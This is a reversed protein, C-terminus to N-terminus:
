SENYVAKLIECVRPATTGGGSEGNEVVMAIAVEADRAGPRSMGNGKAYAIFWTNKRRSAGQGVEATGTKGIVDAAVGEAGRKGTGGDVVRRMGERVVDFEAKTYPLMRAQVAEGAKCRPTVLRGTGIAGAVRAMQLPTVMLMGQGISMQALDGPYWPEGYHLKKWAGDPVVGAFDSPYDIGTKEGLGFAHAAAFLANTGATMGLNCFFPNCSDRLGNRIDTPGHGWTRSCRIRFKEGIRFSGTCVYEAHSGIGAEMGAIATVPKFTSGPAYGGAVARNLLPKGPDSSLSDYLSKRMIPVCENPDFKPSSAMAMIGGNRADMVVCAGKVGELQAEAVAQIRVDLELVLDLGKEPEALVVGGRAFGRADVIVDMEGPVGKLYNDYYFELGSRGRMELDVFNFKEDGATAEPRDRGVYGLLHAAISGQPYVREADEKISFGPLDSEHEAFRALTEDDVDRWVVLPQSLSQNIHRSITKIGVPTERGVTAVANSIAEAMAEATRTWSNKKYPTADICISLSPRNDALVVGNRDLIRGREGETQVRRTSQRRMSDNATAASDIQIAKLRVALVFFLALMAVAAVICAGRGM